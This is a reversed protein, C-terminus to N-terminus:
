KKKCREGEKRLFLFSSVCHVMKTKRYKRKGKYQFTGRSLFLLPVPSLIPEVIGILM